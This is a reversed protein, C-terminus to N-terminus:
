AGATTQKPFYKDVLAQKMLLEQLPIFELAMGTVLLVGAAKIFGEPLM